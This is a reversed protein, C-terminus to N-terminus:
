SSTVRVHDDASRWEELGGYRTDLRVRWLFRFADELEVASEDSLGGAAAVAGLRSVTRNLTLGCRSRTLALSTIPVIGSRKVDITGAHAGGHGVVLDRFFGRPPSRRL